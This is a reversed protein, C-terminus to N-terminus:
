GLLKKMSDQIFFITQEKLQLTVKQTIKNYTLQVRKEKTVEKIKDNIARILHPPTPYYGASVEMKHHDSVHGDEGRKAVVIWGDGERLNYWTHPYQFEVLGVEWEGDLSITEPLKTMYHTLTNDPFYDFSSNSPLTLYFAM